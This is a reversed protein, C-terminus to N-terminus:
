AQTNFLAKLQTCEMAEQYVERSDEDLNLRNLDLIVDSESSADFVIGYERVTMSWLSNADHTEDTLEDASKCKCNDIVSDILEREWESTEMMDQDVLFAAQKVSNLHFKGDKGRKCVVFDAFSGDKVAYVEPAVPGKKWAYYDLWTLPFGRQRVSEEDILYLAKLLKRLQIDPMRFCLYAILGGVLKKNASIGLSSHM